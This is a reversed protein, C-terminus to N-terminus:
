RITASLQQVARDLILDRGKALAGMDDTMVIDPTIREPHPTGDLTSSRGSTVAIAGGDPLPLVSTSTNLVGATPEGIVKARGARQLFYTMYEAASRSIHNTLVVVPGAWKAPNAIKFGTDTIEGNQFVTVGSGYKSEFRVSVPETFAGAAGLSEFSSGGSSGRVDLIIARANSAQALRLSEHVKAAVQNNTLYQYFTIVGIGDGRLVYSPLWPTLAEPQLSFTRRAAGLSSVSLAIPKGTFELNTIASTAEAANKYSEMPLGNVSWVVDGRKLGARDAPSNEKVRTIVLAAADPLADFKLGIMPVTSGRADANFGAYRNASLRFTHGDSVDLLVDDLVTAGTAYPCVTQGACAAGLKADAERELANYDLQKFGYYNNEILTLARDVLTQAQSPADALSTVQFGLMAAAVMLARIM